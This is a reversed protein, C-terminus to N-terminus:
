DLEITRARVQAGEIQIEGVSIPLRFRRPGCSGPNLYLVGRHTQVQPKHSHGSVVLSIRSAEPEIDLEGLNHIVYVFVDGLRVLESERLRRAWPGTDINGRVATVPAIAGLADLIDGPGVDGGHIIYDCGDLFALAQPRLLGHTDSVVGVRLAAAGNSTSRSSGRRAKRVRRPRQDQLPILAGL